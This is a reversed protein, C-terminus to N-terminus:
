RKLEWITVSSLYLLFSNSLSNKYMELTTSHFLVRTGLEAVSYPLIESCLIYLFHFTIYPGFLFDIM